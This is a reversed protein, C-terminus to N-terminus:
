ATTHRRRRNRLAIGLAALALAIAAGTGAEIPLASVSDGTTARRAAATCPRAASKTKGPQTFRLATGVGGSTVVEGRSHPRSAMFAAVLESRGAPATGIRIRVTRTHHPALRFAAPGALRAWTPSGSLSCGTAAQTANTLAARVTEPRTGLNTVRIQYTHHPLATDIAAPSAAMGFTGTSAVLAALAIGGLV